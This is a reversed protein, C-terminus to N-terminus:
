LEMSSITVVIANTLSSSTAVVQDQDGLILKEMDIVYTDTPAIPVAYYFINNTDPVSGNPVAYLNFTVTDQSTNCLYMVTIANNGNSTYVTSYGNGLTVSQIAM